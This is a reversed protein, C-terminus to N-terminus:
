ARLGSKPNVENLEPRLVSKEDDNGPKVRCDMRGGRVHPSAAHAAPDLGTAVLPFVYSLQQHLCVRPRDPCAPPHGAMVATLTELLLGSQACRFGPNGNMRASRERIKSREIRAAFVRKTTMAPSSGAIWAAGRM